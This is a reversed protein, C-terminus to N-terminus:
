SNNARKIEDPDYGALEYLAEDIEQSLKAEIFRLDQGVLEPSIKPPIALLKTKARIVNDCWVKEVVSSRVLENRSESLRLENIEAMATTLRTKASLLGANDFQSRWYSEVVEGLVYEGDSSRPISGEEIARFFGARSLHLFNAAENATVREHFFDRVEKKAQPM